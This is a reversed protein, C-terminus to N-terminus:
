AERLSDLEAKPIYVLKIKDELDDRGIKELKGTIDTPVIAGPPLKHDVYRRIMEVNPMMKLGRIIPINDRTLIDLTWFEKRSNWRVEMQYARNDLEIEFNFAGVGRLPIVFM